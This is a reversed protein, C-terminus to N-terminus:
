DLWMPGERYHAAIRMSGFSMFALLGNVAAGSWRDGLGALVLGRVLSAVGLSLGFLTLWRPRRTVQWALVSVAALPYAIHWWWISFAPVATVDVAMVILCTVIGVTRIWRSM